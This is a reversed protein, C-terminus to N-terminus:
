PDLRIRAMWIDAIIDLHHLLNTVLPFVGAFIAHVHLFLSFGALGHGTVLRLRESKPAPFPVQCSNRPSRLGTSIFEFRAKVSISSKTTMAMMAMRAASNNGTKLRALSVALRDAHTLLRLCTFRAM